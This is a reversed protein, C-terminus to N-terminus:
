LLKKKANAVYLWLSGRTKGPPWWKILVRVCYLFMLSSKHVSSSKCFQLNTKDCLYWVRATAVSALVLSSMPFLFTDPFFSVTIVSKTCWLLLLWYYNNNVVANCQTSPPHGSHGPAEVTIVWERSFLLSGHNAIGAVWAHVGVCHCGPVQWVTM